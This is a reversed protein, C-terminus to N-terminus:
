STGESATLPSSFEAPYQRLQTMCAMAILPLAFLVPLGLQYSGTKDFAIGLAFPAVSGGLTFAAFLYGYIEGYSTLGFYRSVMYSMLDLESGQALGLMVAGVVLMPGSTGSWIVAMAGSFGAFFIFAIRPAFYRDLLIGTIFRGIIMSIGIVLIALSAASASIGRDTLLPILHVAMGHFVMSVCVFAVLMLWFDRSRLAQHPTSGAVEDPPAGPALEPDGDSRLGMEAPSNRLLLGVAPLTVGIVILGLCLYAYRWGFNGLIFQAFPATVSFGISSGLVALALALGRRRNFWQSVVKGYSVPNTGSGVVGILAFGLWLTWISPRLQSLSAEAIGFLLASILIVRRGGFRDVLRGTVPQVFFIAIVLCNLAWSVQGRTWGFEEGLPKMFVGLTATVIPGIHVALGLSAALVVWWGYFIRPRSVTTM